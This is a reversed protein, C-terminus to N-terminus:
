TLGGSKLALPTGGLPSPTKPVAARAKQFGAAISFLSKLDPTGGTLLSQAAGTLEQSLSQGLVSVRTAVQQPQSPALTQGTATQPAATQASMLLASTPAGSATQGNAQAPTIGTFQSYKSEADSVEGAVNAPREFQSSIASIAADGKLGGAVNNIQGLAYSLGQPSWAWAQSAQEGQPASGPYAGGYHLQFPGFSTGNDGVGGSLGEHSAIALVAAPDLNPFQQLAAVVKQQLASGGTATAAPETNRAEAFTTGTPASGGLAPSELGKDVGSGPIQVHEPDTQGNYFGPQNGGQLGYHQLTALPIVDGIPKGNINADVAEGRTHPDNSYGGVKASYSPSRYGSFIQITQGTQEGIRNLASLLTPNVGQISATPAVSLYAYGSGNSAM